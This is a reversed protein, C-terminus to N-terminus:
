DFSEGCINCILFQLKVYIIKFLFWGLTPPFYPFMLSSWFIYRTKKYEYALVILCLLLYRSNIFGAICSRPISDLSHLSRPSQENHNRPIEQLIGPFARSSEASHKLLNRPINLFIGPDFLCSIEDRCSFFFFIHLCKMRPHFKLILM